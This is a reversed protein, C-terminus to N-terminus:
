ERGVMKRGKADGAAMGGGCTQATAGSQMARRGRERAERMKAGEVRKGLGMPRVETAHDCTNLLRSKSTGEGRLLLAIEPEEATSLHTLM